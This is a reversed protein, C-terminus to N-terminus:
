ARPSRRSAKKESATREYALDDAERAVSAGEYLGERLAREAERARRLLEERDAEGQHRAIVLEAGEALLKSVTTGRRAALAKLRRRLGDSLYFTTKTSDM